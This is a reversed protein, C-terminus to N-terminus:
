YLKMESLKTKIYPANTLATMCDSVVSGLLHNTEDRTLTKGKVAVTVTVQASDDKAFVRKCRKM